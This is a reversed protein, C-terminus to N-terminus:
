SSSTRIVEVSVVKKLPFFRLSMFGAIISCYLARRIPPPLAGAVTLRSSETAEFIKVVEFDAYYIRFRGVVQDRESHNERHLIKGCMEHIFDEPEEFVLPIVGSPELQLSWSSANTLTMSKSYRVESVDSGDVRLNM